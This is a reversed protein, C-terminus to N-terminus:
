KIKSFLRILNYFAQPDVKPFEELFAKVFDDETTRSKEQKSTQKTNTNNSPHYEISGDNFVSLYNVIRSFLAPDISINTDSKKNSRRNEDILSAIIDIVYAKISDHYTCYHHIINDIASEVASGIIGDIIAQIHKRLEPDEKHVHNVTLEVLNPRNYINAMFKKFDNDMHDIIMAKIEDTTKNNFQNTDM